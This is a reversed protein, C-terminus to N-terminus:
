QGTIGSREIATAWTQRLDTIIAAVANFEGKKTQEMCYRYLRFLGVAVERYRFDLCDILQSLGRCAREADEVELAGLIVDYTKLLLEGPTLSIVAQNRYSNLQNWSASYAVAM